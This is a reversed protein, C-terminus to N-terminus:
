QVEISYYINIDTIVGDFVLSDIIIDISTSSTKEVHYVIDKLLRLDEVCQQKVGEVLTIVGNVTNESNPEGLYTEATILNLVYDRTRNIYLDLGDPLQSNVCYYKNTRRNRCALFPVNLSLLTAGLQGATTDYEPSVATVGDIIKSTLSRNVDMGAILGCIYATSRNLDLTTGNITFTQTNIYYVNNNYKGVSTTYDAATSKSLQAVQGHCYKDEFESDLWSTVTTQHTDSLQDAIFLIDFDENHLLALAAALKETTITTSAVPTDDDSWTTINAVLLNSAGMFLYDIADTGKFNGATATTGFAAHAARASTCNTLATIESDFAGIVAISSAQGTPTEYVTVAEEKVTIKPETAM